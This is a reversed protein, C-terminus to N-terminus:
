KNKRRRHEKKAEEEFQEDQWPQLEWMGTRKNLIMPVGNCTPPIINYLTM